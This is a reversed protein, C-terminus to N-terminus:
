SCGKQETGYFFLGWDLEQDYWRIDKSKTKELSELLLYLRSEMAKRPIDDTFYTPLAQARGRLGIDLSPVITNGFRVEGEVEVLQVKKIDKVELLDSSRGLVLPYYPKYFCQAIQEEKIYLYLKPEYLFERKIVNSKAKLNAALEYITELDVGKTNYSFVYALDTDKPTVPSGVAASVLGYITSLPPVPLTPQFGTIFMPYRFSATWGQLSIRTVKM